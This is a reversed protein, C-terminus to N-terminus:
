SIKCYSKKFDLFDNSNDSGYVRLRLRETPLRSLLFESFRKILIKNTNSLGISSTRLYRDAGWLGLIYSDKPRVLLSSLSGVTNGM